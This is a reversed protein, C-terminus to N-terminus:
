SNPSDSSLRSSALQEKRYQAPSKGTKKKFLTSFSGLSEFGVAYCTETVTNGQKLLEKSKDIRIDILFQRPTLGYYEKFLRLLHYKSIGHNQSIIELDLATHYNAKIFNRIGIMSDLQKQNPYVAAYM